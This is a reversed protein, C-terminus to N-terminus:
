HTLDGLRKLSKLIPFCKEAIKESLRSSGGFDEDSLHGFEHVSEHLLILAPHQSMNDIVRPNFFYDGLYTLEVNTFSVAGATGKKLFSAVTEKRLPYTSKRGDFVNINAAMQAVLAALSKIKYDQLAGDCSADCAAKKADALAGNFAKLDGGSIQPNPNNGLVGQLGSPDVLNTPSNAVYRYSDSDGTLGSPDESLFRGVSPDYYRARNYYLGTEIDNERGTYQFRLSDLNTYNPGSNNGFSDYNFLNWWTPHSSTTETQVVSGLGDHFV